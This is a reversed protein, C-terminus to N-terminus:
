SGAKTVGPVLSAAINQETLSAACSQPPSSFTRLLPPVIILLPFQFSTLSLGLGIGSLEGFVRIRDSTVTGTCEHHWALTCGEASARNM